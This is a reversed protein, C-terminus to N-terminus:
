NEAWEQGGVALGESLRRLDNCIHPNLLAPRIARRPWQHASAPRKPSMVKTNHNQKNKAGEEAGVAQM